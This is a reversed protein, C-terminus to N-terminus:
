IMAIRTIVMARYSLATTNNGEVDCCGVVAKETWQHHVPDSRWHGELIKTSLVCMQLSPPAFITRIKKRPQTEGFACSLLIVELKDDFRCFCLFLPSRLSCPIEMLFVHCMVDWTADDPYSSLITVARKPFGMWTSKTHLTDVAANDSLWKCSM